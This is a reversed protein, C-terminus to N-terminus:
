TRLRSTNLLPELMVPTRWRTPPHRIRLHKQRPCRSREAALDLVLSRVVLVVDIDTDEVGAQDPGLRHRDPSVSNAEATPMLTNAIVSNLPEIVFSPPVIM